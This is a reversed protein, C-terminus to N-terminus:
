LLLRSLAVFKDIIRLSCCLRAQSTRCSHNHDSDGRKELLESSLVWGLCDVSQALDGVKGGLILDAAIEIDGSGDVARMEISVHQGSSGKFGGRRQIEFRQQM